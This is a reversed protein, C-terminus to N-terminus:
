APGCRDTRRAAGRGPQACPRRRGRPHDRDRGFFRELAPGIEHSLMRLSGAWPELWVRVWQTGIRGQFLVRETEIVADADTGNTVVAHRSPRPTVLGTSVRGTIVSVGSGGQGCQPEVSAM